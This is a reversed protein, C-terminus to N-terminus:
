KLDGKLSNRCVLLHGKTTEISHIEGTEILAFIRRANQKTLDVASDLNIFETQKGCNECFGQMKERGNRLIFIEHTETTILYKKSKKPMETLIPKFSPFRDALDM